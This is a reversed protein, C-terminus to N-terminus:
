QGQGYRERWTDAALYWAGKTGPDNAYTYYVRGRAVSTIRMRAPRRNEDLYSAHTFELGKRPETM